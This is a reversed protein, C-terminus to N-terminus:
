FKGLMSNWTNRDPSKGPFLAISGGNSLHQSLIEIIGLSVKNLGNLIILDKDEIDKRTFSSSLVNQTKYYNDLGFVSLFNPVFDEGDLILVKAGSVEYSFYYNDDFNIEDDTVTLKGQVWGDKGDRYSFKTAQKSRAQINIFVTKKLTGIVANLELNEIDQDTDNVVRINIECNTEAKHVPSSYWVSDIYINKTAEPSLKVPVVPVDPFNIKKSEKEIKENLQFDSYYIYSM